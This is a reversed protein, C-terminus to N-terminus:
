GRLRNVLNEIRDLAKELNEISNAFSVRIYGEKYFGSGPVVAVKSDELLKKSFEVDSMNFEKINIFFYFAGHPEVFKLKIKKLRSSVYEKREKFKEFMELVNVDIAKLAAYQTPTNVNSTTHSQIKGIQKMLEKPGSCYGIRWGTMSWTKSFANVVITREKMKDISAISFHYGNYILLEYVEDSIVILNNKIAFDAIMELTEKPYVMGTPNNPTNIIIIKTKDTINKELDEKKPLFNNDEDLEVHITKAGTLVIQAEYSVWSPDLVMVEDGPDIVALLINYIAQKGGNTVVIEDAEYKIGIRKDIYESLKERLEKIGKADTYKTKNEKMAKYAEEIIETPTPFDPEGATLKVIDQGKKALEIAKANLELTISPSVLQVNKSIKM